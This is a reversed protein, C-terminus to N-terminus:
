AFHGQKDLRVQSYQPPGVLMRACRQDSPGASIAATPESLSSSDLDSAYRCIECRHIKDKTTM